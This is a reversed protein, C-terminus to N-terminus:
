QIIGDGIDELEKIIDSLSEFVGKDIIDQLEGNKEQKKNTGTFARLAEEYEKNKLREIAINFDGGMNKSKSILVGKVVMSVFFITITTIILKVFIKKM